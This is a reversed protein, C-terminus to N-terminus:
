IRRVAKTKFLVRCFGLELIGSSSLLVALALLLFPFFGVMM